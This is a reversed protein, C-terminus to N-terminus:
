APVAEILTGARVADLMNAYVRFHFPSIISPATM